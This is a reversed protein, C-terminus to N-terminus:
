RSKRSEFNLVEPQPPINFDKALEQKSRWEEEMRSLNTMATALVSLSAYDFDDRHDDCAKRMMKWDDETLFSFLLEPDLVAMAEADPAFQLASVSRRHELRQRVTAWQVESVRVELSPDYLLLDAMIDLNPRSLREKMQMDAVVPAFEDSDFHVVFGLKRLRVTLTLKDYLFDDLNIVYDLMMKRVAEDLGYTELQLSPDLTILESAAFIIKRAPNQEGLYGRFQAIMGNWDDATLYRAPDFHPEHKTEPMELQLRHININEENFTELM